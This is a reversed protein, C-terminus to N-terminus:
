MVAEMLETAQYSTVSSGTFIVNHNSFNCCKLLAAIGNIGQQMPIVMENSKQSMVEDQKCIEMKPENSLIKSSM